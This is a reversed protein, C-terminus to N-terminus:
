VDTAEWPTVWRREARYVPIPGASLQREGHLVGRRVLEDLLVQADEAELYHDAYPERGDWEGCSCDPMGGIDQGPEHRM